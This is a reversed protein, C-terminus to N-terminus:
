KFRILYNIKKIESMPFTETETVSVKRKAGEPKVSREVTLEVHDPTAASLVGSLKRGTTTLLEVENGINKQYQRFVKFPSTIGCSGVELEYDEDERDFQSEIHKNLAVCDDIGLAEDSDIDVVIRNDSSVRVEVLFHSTTALHAEIVGILKEKDIM